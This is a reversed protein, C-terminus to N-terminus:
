QPNNPAFALGLRRAVNEYGGYEDIKSDLKVAQEDDSNLLDRFTPMAIIPYKLPPTKKMSEQRVFELLNIGFELDFKGYNLQTRNATGDELSSAHLMGLRQAVFKQGGFYGILSHLREYGQEDLTCVKPFLSYDGNFFEDSYAKLEIMLEYLGEMYHWEKPPILGAKKCIAKSGGFRAIAQHLDNRGADNM